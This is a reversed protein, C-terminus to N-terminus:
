NPELQEVVGDAILQDIEERGMGWDALADRSHQGPLAPPASIAAPTRSFRPAANPQWDGDYDVFTDRALNHPHHPAEAMSLVPAFCVDTGELLKTWEARSRTKVIAAVKEKLPPWDARDLSQPLDAADAGIRELFEAYFKAEIPALAIYEADSTEYVDYFHAGSDLMNEGHTDNFVGAGRMAYIATMLSAAGDVMAADVVQGKGSQRAEFLAAVVGLALYLAGGGYDGVLNLPPTPPAGARGVASLAGTLAIYNLDHGATQSLPGDQGWGTVRGFVLRPNIEACDEPGLGLREMVGPRMGEILIDADKALRLVLEVGAKSKLDVAVSRRSRDLFMKNVDIGLGSPVVRDIKLVDAGMEALLMACMPCPGIGAVEVVKVGALPGSKRDAM